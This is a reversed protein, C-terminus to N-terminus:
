IWDGDNELARLEAGTMMRPAELNEFYRDWEDLDEVPEGQNELEDQTLLPTDSFAGAFFLQNYREPDTYRLQQRLQDEVDIKEMRRTMYLHYRAAFM